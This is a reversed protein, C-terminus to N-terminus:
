KILEMFIDETLSQFHEDLFNGLNGESMGSYLENDIFIINEVNEIGTEEKLNHENRQGYREGGLILAIDGVSFPYVEKIVKVAGLVYTVDEKTDRQQYKEIESKLIELNEFQVFSQQRGM